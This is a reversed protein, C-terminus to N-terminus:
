RIVEYFEAMSRVVHVTHGLKAAWCKIALQAPRLKGKASKAEILFSRGHDAYIQFDPEGLVRSTRHAMSGHFFLWGRRRCENGIAAHLDSESESEKLEDVLRELAATNRTAADGPWSKSQRANFAAVDAETWHSFPNSM